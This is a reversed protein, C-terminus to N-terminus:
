NNSANDEIEKALDEEIINGYKNLLFEFKERLHDYAAQERYVADEFTCDYGCETDFEFNYHCNGCISM